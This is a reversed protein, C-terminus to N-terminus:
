SSKSPLSAFYFFAGRTVIAQNDEVIQGVEQIAQDFEMMRQEIREEKEKLTPANASRMRAAYQKNPKLLIFGWM